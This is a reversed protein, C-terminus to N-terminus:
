RDVAVWFWTSDLKRGTYNLDAGRYTHRTMEADIVIRQKSFSKDVKAGLMVMYVTDGEIDSVEKSARYINSDYFMTTSARLTVPELPGAMSINLLAYVLAFCFGVFFLSATKQLPHKKEVFFHDKM